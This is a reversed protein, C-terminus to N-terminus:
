HLTVGAPRAPALRDILLVLVAVLRAAPRDGAAKAETDDPVDVWPGLPDPEGAERWAREREPSWGLRLGGPGPVGGAPTGAPYANAYLRRRM